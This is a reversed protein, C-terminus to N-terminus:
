NGNQYREVIEKLGIYHKAFTLTKELTYRNGSGAARIIFDKLNTLDVPPYSSFYIFDYSTLILFKFNHKREELLEKTLPIVKSYPFNDIAAVWYIDDFESENNTWM